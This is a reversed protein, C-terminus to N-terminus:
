AYETQMLVIHSSLLDADNKPLVVFDIENETVTTTQNDM